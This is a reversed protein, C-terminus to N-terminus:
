NQLLLPCTLDLVTTGESKSSSSSSDLGTGKSKSTYLGESESTSSFSDLGTGEPESTYTCVMIWSYLIAFRIWCKQTPLIYGMIQFYPSIFGILCRRIQFYSCGMIWFYLLIFGIWYTCKQNLLLLVGHNPLLPPHIWDLVKQNPLILPCTLDLLVKQNPLLPLCIQDLAGESEKDKTTYLHSLWCCIPTNFEQRYQLSLDKQSQLNSTQM